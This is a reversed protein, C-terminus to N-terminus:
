PATKIPYDGEPKTSKAGFVKVGYYMYGARFWSMGDEVCAKRFETDAVNKYKSRDLGYDRMCQYLADHILAGRMSDRTDITPGSPGDWAYGKKIILQGDPYLKIYESDVTENLINVVVSYDRVLQYKYGESYTIM